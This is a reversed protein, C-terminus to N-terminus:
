FCSHKEAAKRSTYLDDCCFITAYSHFRSGTCSVTYNRMNSGEFIRGSVCRSTRYTDTRNHQLHDIKTGPPVVVESVPVGLQM